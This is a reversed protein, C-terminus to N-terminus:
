LSIHSGHVQIHFLIYPSYVSQLVKVRLVDLKTLIPAADNLTTIYIYIHIMVYIYKM